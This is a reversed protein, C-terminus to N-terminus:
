VRYHTVLTFGLDNTADTLTCCQLHKNMLVVTKIHLGTNQWNEKEEEETEIKGAKIIGCGIM